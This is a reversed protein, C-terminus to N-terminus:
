SIFATFSKEPRVVIQLIHDKAFFRQEESGRVLFGDDCVAVFAGSRERIERITCGKRGIVRGKFELENIKLQFLQWDVRTKKKVM